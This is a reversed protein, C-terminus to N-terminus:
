KNAFGPKFHADGCKGKRGAQAQKIIPNSGAEIGIVHIKVMHLTFVRPETVPAEVFCRKPVMELSGILERASVPYDYLACGKM